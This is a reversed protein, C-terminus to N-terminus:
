YTVGRVWFVREATSQAASAKIKIHQWGGLVWTDNFAGTSATTLADQGLDQYTQGGRGVQLELAASDITPIEVQLYAYPVELDVPASVTGSKAITVKKWQGVAPAVTANGDKDGRQDVYGFGRPKVRNDSM